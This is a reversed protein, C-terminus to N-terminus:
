DSEYVLYTIKFNVNNILGINNYKIRFYLGPLVTAPQQVRFETRGTNRPNIYETRVLNGVELVDVGVTLGLGSFLGLVDDKDVVSFDIYDGINSNADLVEYWGAEVKLETTVVEDFINLTNPLATYKYGKFYGDLGEEYRFSPSQIAIGNEDKKPIYGIGM